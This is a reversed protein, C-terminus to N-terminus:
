QKRWLHPNAEYYGVLTEVVFYWGVTFVDQVTFQQGEMLKAIEETMLKIKQDQEDASILKRVEDLTMGGIHRLLDPNVTRPESM